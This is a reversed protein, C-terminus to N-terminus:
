RRKQEPTRVVKSNKKTKRQSKEVFNMISGFMRLNQLPSLLNLHFRVISSLTITLKTSCFAKKLDETSRISTSSESIFTM